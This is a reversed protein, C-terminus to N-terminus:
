EGTPPLPKIGYDLILLPMPNRWVRCIPEISREMAPDKLDPDTSYVYKGADRRRYEYLPAVSPSEAQQGAFGVLGGEYEGEWTGIEDTDDQRVEGALRGVNVRATLIYVEEEEDLIELELNGDKFSGRVVELDEHSAGGTVEEGDLTLELAFSGEFGDFLEFRCRWRGTLKEKEPILEAPLAYFLPDDPVGAMASPQLRLAVGGNEQTAFVPILGERRRDPPLAFFSVEEIADSGNQSVVGERLVYHPIGDVGKVLYVPVPLFLRPDDLALRYMIQNYDYRPTQDPNGSFSNTYTGDFYILRGEDQDFFPHQTVNYFTYRDHNVIRVAYVWPGVPTDAEAYWVEGVNKQAIMVWRQRFENWFVSGPRPDIPEGTEIDTLYLWGEDRQIGGAAMLEQQRTYGVPDTNPKWGYVPRGDPGREIRSAGEEYIGGPSLPTFSEYSRPDVIYEQRAQVRSYQFGSTFYLYEGGQNEARFPHTSRHPEGPRVDWQTHREFVEKEDNFVAIGREYAEGLTRMRSYKAFLREGGREDEIAAIWDLWVLGPGPIPCLSKSFGSENVFYTLDIGVGPDLGGRGPLESTAGSVAGNFHAPGFTDGWFWYLKGRYPVVVDTDQGMVGGNLVPSQIPAPQGLLISHHYIGEGTIRYLREALNIRRIRLLASGGKTVDLVAGPEGLFGGHFEYGHSKIHFGVRQGMLGPEYFAVIGNSDTYYRIKSTTKLEVLPVGRGTEEDFVTIKFYEGAGPEETTCAFIIPLVPILPFWHGWPVRSKWLCRSSTAM